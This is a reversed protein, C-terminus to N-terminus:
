NDGFVYENKDSIRIADGQFRGNRITALLHNVTIGMQRAKENVSIYGKDLYRQRKSKISYVTMIKQIIRATFACDKGSKYGKANLADALEKETFYEAQEDIFDLVTKPTAWAEYSKLPNPFKLTESTGGKFRVHATTNAEDKILTVDEVLYRIIRKRDKDEVNEAEWVQKFNETLMKLKAADAEYTDANNKMVRDNYEKETEELEVLKQNWVSELETAVLRNGPDVNMYRRRAVESEYRAEWGLSVLREKLAYQSLTSETNEYVQRLTSQRIYLIAIKNLHEQTIKNGTYNV